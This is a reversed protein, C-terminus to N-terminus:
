NKRLIYKMRGKSYGYITGSVSIIEFVNSVVRFWTDKGILAKAGRYGIGSFHCTLNYLKRMLFHHYYGQTDKMEETRSRLFGDYAYKSAVIFFERLSGRAEHYILAKPAYKTKYDYKKTLQYHFETDAGSTFRGSDYGGAKVFAERLMINNGGGWPVYDTKEIKHEIDFPNSAAYYRQALTKGEKVLTKGVVCGVNDGNFANVLNKLWDKSPFCDADINAVYKDKSSVIGKNRAAPWGKKTELLYKVPYRRIIDATCDTSNNDVVVIEFAPYDLEMISELCKAITRQSNYAAVIVSVKQLNDPEYEKSTNQMHTKM